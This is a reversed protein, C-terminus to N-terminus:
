VTEHYYLGLANSMESHWVRFYISIFKNKWFLQNAIQKDTQKVPKQLMDVQTSNNLSSSLTKLHPSPNLYNYSQFYITIEIM